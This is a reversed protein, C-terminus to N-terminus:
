SSPLPTWWGNLAANSDDSDALYGDPFLKQIFAVAAEENPYQQHEARIRNKGDKMRKVYIRYLDSIGEEYTM